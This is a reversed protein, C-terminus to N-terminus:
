KKLWVTYPTILDAPTWGEYTGFNKMTFVIRDEYVEVYLGQAVKPTCTSRHSYGYDELGAYGIVKDKCFWQPYANADPRFHGGYVMSFDRDECKVM